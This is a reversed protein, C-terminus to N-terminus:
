DIEVHEDEATKPPPSTQDAPPSFISSPTFTNSMGDVSDFFSESEASRDRERNRDTAVQSVQEETDRKRDDAIESELNAIEKDHEQIEKKCIDALMTAPQLLHPNRRENYIFCNNVMLDVDAMFEQRNRYSNQRIKNHITSLDMPNKIIDYYGPAEIPKVPRAFPVAFDNSRMKHKIKEFINSLAVQAAAAGRRRRMKGPGPLNLKIILPSGVASSSVRGISPNAPKYSGYNLPLDDEYDDDNDDLFTYPDVNSPLDEDYMPCVRNTRIHGPMGCAGCKPEGDTTLDDLSGDLMRKKLEDQKEKKSRLRRLYEQLRKKEKKIRGQEMEQEPSLIGNAANRQKEKQKNIYFEIQKPDSIIQYSEEITGDPRKKIIKKRLVKIEQPDVEDLNLPKGPLSAAKELLEKNTIEEVRGGGPANTNIMQLLQEYEHKEDEDTDPKEEVIARRRRTTKDLLDELDREFVDMGEEEAAEEGEEDSMDPNPDSLARIQNDLILQAHENYQTQQQQTSFRIGRAFKTKIGETVAGETSKERIAKVLGWRSLKMIESEPMGLRHLEARAQGLSLKRLDADTGTVLKKPGVDIKKKGSMNKSPVRLYSFGEGRSSPDGLGSLQLMGKGQHVAKVFNGSLNWPTLLIEEELNHAARKKRDDSEEDIKQLARQFPPSVTILDQNTVGATQLRHLGVQAAEYLCVQEPTVLSKLDEESPLSTPDKIVWWGSDDGGRQFDAVEKIVKKVVPGYVPPFKELVDNLKLRSDGGKRKLFFRFIYAKIRNRVYENTLVRSNPAPIEMKPQEQGVTFQAPIERLFIRKGSKILLFDTEAVKHKFIPARFLNNDIAQVMNGPTIDGLFPSEDNPDLPVNEGYDNRMLKNEGANRKRYYNRIKTGMGVNMVMLPNEEIYEVLAIKGDRGSLDKKKRPVGERQLKTTTGDNSMPKKILNVRFKDGARVQLKPRHFNFMDDESLRSKFLSLKSAPVSHHVTTKGLKQKVKSSANLSMYYKDNSINFPDTDADSKRKQGIRKKPLASPADSAAHETIDTMMDQSIADVDIEDDDWVIADEWNAADLQIDLPASPFSPKVAHVASRNEHPAHRERSTRSAPRKPEWVIDDEWCQQELPQFFKDPINIALQPGGESKLPQGVTPSPPRAATDTSDSEDSLNISNFDMEEDTECLLELEAPPIDVKQRKRSVFAIQKPASPAFLESFKLIPEQAVKAQAGQDMKVVVDPMEVDPKQPPPMTGKIEQVVPNKPPLLSSLPNPPLQSGGSPPLLPSAASLLPNSNPLLPASSQGTPLLTPAPSSSVPLLPSSSTPLLPSSNVPLLPAVGVPFMNPAAPLLPNSPPLLNSTGLAPLLPSSSTPLLPSSAAPLFSTPTSSRPLLSSSGSPPLLGSSSTPLLPASPPLLPAPAMMARESGMIEAELEAALDHVGNVPQTPPGLLGGYTTQQQSNSSSPINAGNELIFNNGFDM